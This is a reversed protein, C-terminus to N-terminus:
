GQNNEEQKEGRAEQEELGFDAASRFLWRNDLQWL